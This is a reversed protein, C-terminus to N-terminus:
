LFDTFYVSYSKVCCFEKKSPSYYGVDIRTGGQQIYYSNTIISSMDRYDFYRVPYTEPTIRNQWWWNNDEPSDLQTVNWTIKIHTILNGEITAIGKFYTAKEGGPGYKLDALTIIVNYKGNPLNSPLKNVKSNWLQNIFNLYSRRANIKTPNDINDIYLSNYNKSQNIIKNNKTLGLYFNYDPTFTSVRPIYYNREYTTNQSDDGRKNLGDILGRNYGDTYNNISEYAKITPTVPRYPLFCTIDGYCYGSAFGDQYGITFNNQAFYVTNTLCFVLLFIRKSKKLKIINIM